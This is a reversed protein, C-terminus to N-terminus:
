NKRGRKKSGDKIERKKQSRKDLLSYDEFGSQLYTLTVRRVTKTNVDYKQAIKGLEPKSLYNAMDVFSPGYVEYVDNFIKKNTILFM